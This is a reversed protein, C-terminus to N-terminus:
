WEYDRNHSAHISTRVNLSGAFAIGPAGTDTDWADEDDGWNNWTM